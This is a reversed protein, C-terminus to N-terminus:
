VLITLDSVMFARQSSGFKHAMEAKHVERLKDSDLMTQLTRKLALTAGVRDLRFAPQSMLRKALYAYPIVKADYIIAPIKYKTATDADKFYSKIVRIVDEIQKTEHSNSGIEGSEFKASLAKIDSQVMNIAWTLYEVTITPTHFNVGIAITAALRMAKMAARSWLQRKVEMHTQNQTDTCHREFKKQLVDAADDFQVNIVKNAHMIMECNATLTAFKDILTFSPNVNQHGYNLYPVPGIYEIIIFRPLLGSAIMEENLVRYFKEPTSEGIISVAPNNTVDLNENMDAWISSQFTQGYGSKNYLDLLMRELKKESNQAIPNAMESLRIGFEGLISVFCNSKKNLYKSLAQGSAIEAPGRFRISTPVQQKISNMLKDIGSAIGEKGSGTNAILIVYQQLGTGNVNYARGCIGAMLGIAGALAVEPIPRPAAQYIFQAIEGLLGPPIEISSAIQEVAPMEMPLALQPSAKIDSLKLDLANKFGDFDIPPLMRDFSKLIMRNIYDTRRRKDDTKGLASNKYLREIQKKNQTYFAVIDIFALDAESQSPYGDGWRGELLSKFKIGNVANLAQNIIQEDNLTEKDHGTYIHTNPANGMQDWLQMLTEQQYAIPKDLHVNGTFTAYRQSSYIEIFSRRRGVPVKGKVIVHLGNGSPSVESYSDFEKFIKVQRDFDSQYNPNPQGNNLKSPDDLDIFTYPDNDSFVFGVGDFKDSNFRNFAVSFPSWTGPDNVNALSRSNACYPVKTPKASGIDEYRWCIWAPITKLEEPIRHLNNM